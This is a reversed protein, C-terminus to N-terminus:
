CGRPWIINTQNPPTTGPLPPAYVMTRHLLEYKGAAFNVFGGIGQVATFGQDEFHRSCIPATGGTACRRHGGARNRRIRVTRHVLAPRASVRRSPGACKTMIEHYAAVNALSDKRDGGLAQLMSELLPINDCAVLMEHSVCYGVVPPKAGPEGVFQYVITPDGGARPLRKAGNRTLREGVKALVAAAQDSHGTVDTVLAVAAEDASIEIVALAAEGTPLGELEAWSLGLQDLQKLGQLRLQQKLGDLFPKMAPDGVLQGFQSRNFDASM